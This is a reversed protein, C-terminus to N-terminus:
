FTAYITDYPKQLVTTGRPTLGGGVVDVAKLDLDAVSFLTSGIRTTRLLYSDHEVSGLETIGKAPDIDLVVVGSRTQWTPFGEPSAAAVMVFSQVPLAVVGLEPFFGLAHHDWEANSWSWSEAPQDVLFTGVERPASVDRVDFLSVKLGRTRGTEPDADRGIGLLFGDNLPQLFSSFGPVKLEGAIRPSTPTSLDIVFLPDVREFTVMYATEGVFRASMISEGPAINEVSGVVALTDGQTALVHIANSRIGAFTNTVAVRLFDGHDDASFQNLLHGDFSGSAVFRPATGTIDFQQVDTRGGRISEWRPSFVYLEEANMHLTSAYGGIVSTAGAIGPTAAHIDILVVSTLNVEDGLAPSLVDQPRSVLQPLSITSTGNAAKVTTTWMPLMQEVPAQRIRRTLEVNSVFSNSTSSVGLAPRADPMVVPMVSPVGSWYGALLDNQVVLALRGAVMRSDVYAGDIRTSSLFQPSAPDAVDYITVQVQGAYRMRLQPMIGASGSFTPTTWISSLVTLRGDHLYEAVPSGEIETRSAVVPAAPDQADVIVLEGRSLIYLHRGDNEIIDGEDVGAVQTNTQSYGPVPNATTGAVSPTSPSTGALTNGNIQDRMALAMVGLGSRNRAANALYERFATTTGLRSLQDVRTASTVIDRGGGPQYADRDLGGDIQNTGNGGQLFDNGRGGRITTPIAIAGNEQNVSVEDNGDGAEIRIQRVASAARSFTVRGNEVVQLINANAASRRVEIVDDAATGRITLTGRAITATLLTRAELQEASFAQHGSRARKRDAM